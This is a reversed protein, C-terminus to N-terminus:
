RLAFLQQAEHWSQMHYHAHCYLSYYSKYDSMSVVTCHFISLRLCQGERQAAQQPSQISSSSEVNRWLVWGGFTSFELLRINQRHAWRGIPLEQIVSSSPSCALPHKSCFIYCSYFEGLPSIWRFVSQPVALGRETSDDVQAATVEGSLFFVVLVLEECKRVVAVM